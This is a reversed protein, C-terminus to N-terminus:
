HRDNGCESIPSVRLQAEKWYPDPALGWFITLIRDTESSNQLMKLLKSALIV